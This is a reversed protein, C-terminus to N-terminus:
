RIKHHFPSSFSRAVGSVTVHFSRKIITKNEFPKEVFKDHSTLINEKRKIAEHWLSWEAISDFGNIVAGLFNELWMKLDCFHEVMLWGRDVWKVSSFLLVFTIVHLVKFIYKSTHSNFIKCGWEANSTPLKIYTKGCQESAKFVMQLLNKM